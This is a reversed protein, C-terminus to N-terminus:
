GSGKQGSEQMVEGVRKRRAVLSVTMRSVAVFLRWASNIRIFIKEVMWGGSRGAMGKQRRVYVCGQCCLRTGFPNITGARLKAVWSFVRPGSLLCACGARAAHVHQTTQAELDKTSNFPRQIQHWRAMLYYWDEDPELARQEIRCCWSGSCQSGITQIELLSLPMISYLYMTIQHLVIGGIENPMKKLGLYRIVPTDIPYSNIVCITIHHLAVLHLVSTVVRHM